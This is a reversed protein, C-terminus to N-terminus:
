ALAVTSSNLRGAFTLTGSQRSVLDLLDMYLHYTAPQVLQGSLTDEVEGQWYALPIRANGSAGGSNPYLSASAWAQEGPFFSSGPQLVISNSYMIDTSTSFSYLYDARARGQAGVLILLV